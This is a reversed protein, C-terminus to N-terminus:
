GSDGYPSPERRQYDIIERTGSWPTASGVAMGQRKANYAKLTSDFLRANMVILSFQRYVVIAFSFLLLAAGALHWRSSIGARWATGGTAAVFIVALILLGLSRTMSRKCRAVEELIGVDLRALHVMQAIMKGTVTFYTFTMVQVFCTLILTLVALMVHRDPMGGSRALGTFAAGSLLMLTCLALCTFLRAM